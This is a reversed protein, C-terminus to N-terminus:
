NRCSEPEESGGQAFLLNVTENKPSMIMLHLPIEVPVNSIQEKQNAGSLNWFLLAATTGSILLERVACVKHITHVEINSFINM